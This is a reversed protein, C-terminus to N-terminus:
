ASFPCPVGAPWDDSIVFWLVRVRRKALASSNSPDRRAGGSFVVGRGRTANPAIAARTAQIGGGIVM